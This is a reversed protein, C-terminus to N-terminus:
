TLLFGMAIMGASDRGYQTRKRRAFKGVASLAVRAERVVVRQLNGFCQAHRHKVRVGACNPSRVISQRQGEGARREQKERVGSVVDVVVRQREDHLVAIEATVNLACPSNRAREKTQRGSGRENAGVVM